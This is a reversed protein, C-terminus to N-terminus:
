HYELHNLYANNGVSMLGKNPLYCYLWVSKYNYYSVNYCPSGNFCLKFDQILICMEFDVLILDVTFTISVISLAYM